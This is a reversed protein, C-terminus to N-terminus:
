FGMFPAAVRRMRSSIAARSASPSSHLDTRDLV